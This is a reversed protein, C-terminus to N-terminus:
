FIKYKQQKASRVNLSPQYEELFYQEREAVDEDPSCEHLCKIDFCEDGWERMNVYVPAKRREDNAATKHQHWRKNLSNTTKGIYCDGTVVNLLMYVQGSPCKNKYYHNRVHIRNASKAM